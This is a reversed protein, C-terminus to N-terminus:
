AKTIQAITADKIQSRRSSGFEFQHADRLCAGFIGSIASLLGVVVEGPLEERHLMLVLLRRLRCRRQDFHALQGPHPRPLDHRQGSRQLVTLM